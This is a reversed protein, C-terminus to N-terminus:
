SHCDGAHAHESCVEGSSVLEGKEFLAIVDEVV